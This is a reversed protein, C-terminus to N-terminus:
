YVELNVISLPRPSWLPERDKQTNLVGWTGPEAGPHEIYIRHPQPLDAVSAPSRNMRTEKGILSLDPRGHGFRWQCVQLSRVIM